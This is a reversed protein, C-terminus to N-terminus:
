QIDSFCQESNEESLVETIPVLEEVAAETVEEQLVADNGSVEQLGAEEKSGLTDIEMAYSSISLNSILLSLCLVTSLLRNKWKGVKM